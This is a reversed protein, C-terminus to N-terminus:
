ESSINGYICSANSIEHNSIRKVRKSNGGKIVAYTVSNALKDNRNSHVPTNKKTHSFDISTYVIDDEVHFGCSALDSIDEYLKAPSHTEEDNGTRVHTKSSNRGTKPHHLPCMLLPALKHRFKFTVIVTIIFLLVALIGTLAAVLSAPNGDQIHIHAMNSRKRVSGTPTQLECTYNGSDELQASPVGYQNSLSFGQVNHGNRYFAFQLETTERHPRLETDCAITMHDGETVQDPSVKIQQYPFLEQIHIPAMSSRKRVSGTPTQVECTYNGSDELQASPVGYQNSLSFGQVNHGNRYFAFQLETTERHPRLETDCTITMHDGETVQDPSVKIQPYSFLEQIHIHAMNSRKRVSGTPTQVECTYNGSDELQASPVGYQNSLSFGQVNHGNRYFAFQLETTERHPRLETDCTITM